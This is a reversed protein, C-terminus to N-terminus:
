LFPKFISLNSDDRIDKFIKDKLYFISILKINADDIDKISSASYVLNQFNHIVDMLQKAAGKHKAAWKGNEPHFLIQM